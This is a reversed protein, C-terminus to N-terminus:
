CGRLRMVLHLTADTQINFDALTSEATCNEEGCVFCKLKGSDDSESNNVSSSFGENLMCLRQQHQRQHQDSHTSLMERGAYCIRQQDIPIDDREYIKQKLEAVTDGSSVDLWLIKGTLTKVWIRM